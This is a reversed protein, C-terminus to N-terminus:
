NETINVQLTIENQRHTQLRADISRIAGNFLKTDLLYLSYKFYIVLKYLKWVIM